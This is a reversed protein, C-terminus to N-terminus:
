GSGALRSCSDQEGTGVTRLRYQGDTALKYDDVILRDHSHALDAVVAVQVHPVAPSWKLGVLLRWQRISLSM